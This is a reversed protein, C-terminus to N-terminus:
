KGKELNRIIRDVAETHGPCPDEKVCLAKVLQTRTVTYTKERSM